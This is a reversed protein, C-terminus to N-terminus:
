IVYGRLFITCVYMTIKAYLATNHLLVAKILRFYLFAASFYPLKVSAFDRNLRFINFYLRRHSIKKDFKIIKNTSTQLRQPIIYMYCKM